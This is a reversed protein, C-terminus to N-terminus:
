CLETRSPQHHKGKKRCVPTAILYVSGKWWWQKSHSYLSCTHNISNQYVNCHHKARWCFLNNQIFIIKISYSYWSSQSRINRYLTPKEEYLYFMIGLNPNRKTHLSKGLFCQNSSLFFIFSSRERDRSLVFQLVWM